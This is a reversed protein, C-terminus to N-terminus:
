NKQERLNDASESRVMSFAGSNNNTFYISWWDL